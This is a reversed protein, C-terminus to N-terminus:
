LAELKAPDFEPKPTLEVGAKSMRVEVGAALLMSKMADVGSFDKTEMAAARAAALADGYASLDADAATAWDGMADSLLGLMAASGKLGAADGAAALKHLEAIAGATNLDDALAALVAASPAGPEVGDTLARWKRLTKEAEDRKAETWDM